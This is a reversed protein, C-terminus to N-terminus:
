ELVLTEMSCGGGNSEMVRPDSGFEGVLCAFATWEMCWAVRQQM